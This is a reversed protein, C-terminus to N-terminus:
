PAPQRAAGGVRRGALAAKGAAEALGLFDIDAATLMRPNQAAEAALVARGPQPAIDVADALQQRPRDLPAVQFVGEGDDIGVDDVGEGHRAAIDIDAPPQQRQGRVFGLKGAHQGMLQAVDVRQM